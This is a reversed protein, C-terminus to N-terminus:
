FHVVIGISPTFEWGKLYIDDSFAYGGVDVEGYLPIKYRAGFSAYIGIFNFFKYVAMVDAGVDLSATFLTLYGGSVFNLSVGVMGLASLSFNDWNLLSYGVGMDLILETCDCGDFEDCTPACADFDAKITLNNPMIGLYVLNIGPAVWSIDMEGGPSGYTINGIPMTFGAGAWSSMGEQAFAATGIILAALVCSLKKM